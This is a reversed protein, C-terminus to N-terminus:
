TAPSMALLDLLKEQDEQRWVEGVRLKAYRCASPRNAGPKRKAKPAPLSGPDLPLYKKIASWSLDAGISTMYAEQGGAVQCRAYYRICTYVESPTVELADAVRKVIRQAGVQHRTYLENEAVMEGVEYKADRLEKKARKRHRDVIAYVQQILLETAETDSLDTPLAEPTGPIRRIVPLDTM